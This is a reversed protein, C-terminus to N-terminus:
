DDLQRILLEVLEKVEHTIVEEMQEARVVRAEAAFLQRKLNTIEKVLSHIYDTDSEQITYPDSLAKSRHPKSSTEKVDKGEDSEWQLAENLTKKLITM